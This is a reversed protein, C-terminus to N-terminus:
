RNEADKQTKLAAVKCAPPVHRSAHQLLSPSRTGGCDGGSASVMDPFADQLLLKEMPPWLDHGVHSPSLVLDVCLLANEFDKIEAGLGM